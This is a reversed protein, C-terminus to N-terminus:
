AARRVSGPAVVQRFVAMVEALTPLPRQSVRSRNAENRHRRLHRKVTSLSCGLRHALTELSEHPNANRLRVVEDHNVHRHRATIGALTDLDEPTVTIALRSRIEARQRATTAGAYGAVDHKVVANYLCQQMLPCARCINEAKRTLMLYQRQQDSPASATPPEELLPHQFLAAFELCGQTTSETRTTTAASM